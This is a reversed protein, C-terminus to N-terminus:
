AIQIGRCSLSDGHRDTIVIAQAIDYGSVDADDPCALATEGDSGPGCLKAGPRNEDVVV